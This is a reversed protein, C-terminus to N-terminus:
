STPSQCIIWTTMRQCTESGVDYRHPSVKTSVKTVLLSNYVHNEFRSAGWGWIHGCESRGQIMGQAILTRPINHPCTRLTLISAHSNFSWQLTHCDLDCVTLMMIIVIDDNIICTTQIRQHLIEIDLGTIYRFSIHCCLPLNISLM